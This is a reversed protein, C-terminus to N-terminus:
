HLHYLRRATGSLVEPVRDPACREILERAIGLWEAYTGVTQLVPWDSGWLVREAGFSSFVQGVWPM